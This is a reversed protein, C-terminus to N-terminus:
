WIKLMRALCFRLTKLIIQMDLWFSQNEMYFFDYELHEHIPKNRHPSIQWLGTLGPKVSLRKRQIENYKEVISPIEPRPGVLSMEGRLVNIFQPLEDLFTKRLFKGIGTVEGENKMSCIKYLNFIKGDKGVRPLKIIGAEKLNLRVLLSLFLILPSFFLIGIIAGLVDVMRKM